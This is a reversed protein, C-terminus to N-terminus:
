SFMSKTRLMKLQPSKIYIHNLHTKLTAKTIHLLKQIELNSKKELLYLGIETERPTFNKEKFITKYNTLLADLLKFITLERDNKEIFKHIDCIHKELYQRQALKANSKSDTLQLKSDQFKINKCILCNKLTQDGCVSKCINNQFLVKKDRTTLCIGLEDFDLLSLNNLEIDM